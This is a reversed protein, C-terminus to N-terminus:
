LRRHTVAALQYMDYSVEENEGLHISGDTSEGRMAGTLKYLELDAQKQGKAALRSRVGLDQHRLGQAVLRSRRLGETRKLIFLASVM